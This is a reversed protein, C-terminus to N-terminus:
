PVVSALDITTVGGQLTVRRHVLSSRGDARLEVELAYDGDALSLDHSVVRPARGSGYRFTAERAWDDEGHGSPAKGDQPAWRADLEEVRGAASGLDYRVSQDKPWRPKLTAGAAVAPVVLALPALRRLNV